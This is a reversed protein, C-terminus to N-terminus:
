SSIETKLFRQMSQNPCLRGEFTEVAHIFSEFSKYRAPFWLALSIIELCALTDIDMRWSAVGNHAWQYMDAFSFCLLTGNSCWLSTAFGTAYSSPTSFDAKSPATRSRKARGEQFPELHPVAQVGHRSGTFCHKADGRAIGSGHTQDMLRCAFLPPAKWM